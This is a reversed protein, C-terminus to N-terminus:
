RPVFMPRGSVPDPLVVAELGFVEELLDPRLVDVPPGDAVIRGDALVVLRDAHRAAQNLDHLVMVVTKGEERRLGEILRMLAAQHGVDLFTTPEDLLLLGTQQALAVAIWARQRQGGSLRDARASALEGMGTVLLAADIAEDDQARLVGLVGARPHRGQAVLERVTIGAPITANQPLLALRRAIERSGLDTLRRGHLRVTGSRPRLVRAVAHLLTSKGSGNPGVLATISGEEIELDVDSLVDPGRAYGVRLGRAELAPTTM